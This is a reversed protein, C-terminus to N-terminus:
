AVSGLSLSRYKPFFVYVSNKYSLLLLTDYINENTYEKFFQKAYGNKVTADFLFSFLQKTHRPVFVFLFCLEM